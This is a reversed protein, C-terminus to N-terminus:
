SSCKSQPFPWYQDWNETLFAHYHWDEPVKDDPGPFSKLVKKVRGQDGKAARLGDLRGIVKLMATLAIRNMRLGLCQHPGMGLHIYSDLPRNLVVTEPNTFAKPDHSASRFNVMIKDGPKFELVRNGDKIQTPKTCWRFVGTEGNLRGGELVYHMLKEFAEDTDQKALANIDKLHVQGPGTLYYDLIQGFLQGQNATMGGATGLIHGWVLSKVDMPDTKNDLLKHILHIGYDKLPTSKEFIKAFLDSFTGTAKIASVNAEVLDGLIHTAQYAKQRLPFSEAPDLDFFICIFVAAMILYLEQETFIGLPRAETKLPLSFVEASFHVHTLNSVDRIIDVENMNGLKYAKQKLLQETIKEYYEKVEREWKGEIYLASQMMQRSKANAPGDGALMFNKAAPGMLFEMAPGWTVKFADQNTVIEKAAAYSFVITADPIKAPRDFNYKNVKGLDTLVRKMESPITLPYHAYVSNPQFYDPLARLFLKYFMCGNDITVDPNVETFGWNTLKRPNYDLTYFRDGRVLAVADSLVARSITFGPTLGAGPVCPKKAEETVLGVYLEVQDPTDYLRMLQEAVYPDSNIDEFTQHPTLNFYKRFENLTAVNWARSQQIGLIEIVKMVPPVRNAGYSNAVDEISSTLIEALDRDRFTGDGQRTLKAFPRKYPKLNQLETELVTAKKIFEHWDMTRPDTGPFTEKWMEETWKEDRDSIASHWRYVLNFECSVQNGSAVPLGTIEERPDLAWNSDTKNLNLITRVYDLLIINVYLGCTVLRATQFLDEDYKKWAAANKEDSPDGSPRTFRGTDNISALQDCAYNHFRNFLILLAGVGPPFTLLRVESFCDPFIKGDKFTRMTDQETQNSGYLPALDLYSSTDSITYDAHNTRFLDHIIISALYFLVSSIKNPHPERHKRTMVSDFIVGPDPMAGPQMMKPAVTRAYPTGAKGVNPHLLSNFSGDASRYKYEKGIYSIPPHQM